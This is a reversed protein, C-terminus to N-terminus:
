KHQENYREKFYEEITLKRDEKMRIKPAFTMPYGWVHHHGYPNKIESERIGIDNETDVIDRNLRGINTWLSGTSSGSMLKSMEDVTDEYDM